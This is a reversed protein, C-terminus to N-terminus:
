TLFDRRLLIRRFEAPPRRAATRRLLLPMKQRLRQGGGAYKRAPFLAKQSLYPFQPRVNGRLAAGKPASRVPSFFPFLNGRKESFAPFIGVFASSYNEQCPT